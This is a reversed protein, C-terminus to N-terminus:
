LEVLTIQKKMIYTEGGRKKAGSEKGAGCHCIPHHLPSLLGGGKGGEGANQKRRKTHKLEWM